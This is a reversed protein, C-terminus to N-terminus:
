PRPPAVVASRGLGCRGPPASGAGGFATGTSLLIDDGTATSTSTLDGASEGCTALVKGATADTTEGAAM